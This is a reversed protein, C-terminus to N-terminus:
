DLQTFKGVGSIEKNVVKPHGYYGFRCAGSLDVSLEETAHVTVKSAGSCTAKLYNFILDEAMIKTAGSIIITGTEVAGSLEIKAAGSTKLEFEKVKISGSIKSAGNLDLRFEETEFSDIILKTSGNAKITNINPTYITIVCTVDSFVPQGKVKLKLVDGDQEISIYEEINENCLLEVKPKESQVINVRFLDEIELHQIAVTTVEKEILNKSGRITDFTCSTAFVSVLLLVSIINRM